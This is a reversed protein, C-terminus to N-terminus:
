AAAGALGRARLLAEIAPDRGRFARYTAGPEVSDGVSYIHRYLREATASDFVNGTEVFAEFGDAELVAAWLYVYYRASYHDSSFLHGFHPLRHRMRITAPMGIRTLQAVEFAAPDLDAPDAQHIAQDVLACAVYEVNEFGQNFHLAARIREILRDPLPEGTVTHRMHRQLVDRTMAWNEFIQSPLEVFDSLVNAGALRPYRVNSLLGHLGHGFEHFMTRVDDFSLLTPEGRNFNNNNLVIPIVEGDFSSQLRLESMWAGGQKTPRAFDDALFIGIRKGQRLVEYARADPHYTPLDRREVMEVGFLRRATDFLATRVADLAFYPKLEADDLAYDRVRLKEALYRWDWPQLDTPEGLAAALERLKAEEAAARRKAATWVRQLLADVAQPTRAMTDTLVYDAYSAHGHLRAQEQRLVLIQRILPRNDHAGDHEGRSLWAEYAQQRLDRRASFTLFPSVLSRSLTVVHGDLNREVAAARTAERLFDPLGALDDTDNLQLVYGAEDALVNQSFRAMLAALEEVIAGYRARTEPALRAGALVFDTHIRAVLRLSEPDLGLTHRAGHVADVRRFLDANLHITSYHAAIRPCLELEVAQLEPSTASLTLNDFLLELRNLRKGSRQFALLTNAFDPAAPDAAIADIERNHEAMLIEAAPLFHETRLSSFPPLEFPTNWDTLLPNTTTM